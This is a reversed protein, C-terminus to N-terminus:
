KVAKCGDICGDGDLDAPAEGARCDGVFEPCACLRQGENAVCQGAQNCNFPEDSGPPSCDAGCVKGSCAPVTACDFAAASNAICQGSANCAFPEDSGPPTCDAGCVKTACTSTSPAGGGDAAPESGNVSSQGSGTSPTPGDTKGSCGVAALLSVAAFSAFLFPRRLPSFSSSTMIGTSTAM